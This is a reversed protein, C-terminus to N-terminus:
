LVDDDMDTLYITLFGNVDEGGYDWYFPIVTSITLYYVHHKNPKCLYSFVLRWIEVM